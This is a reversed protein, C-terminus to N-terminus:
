FTVHTAYKFSVDQGGLKCTIIILDKKIISHTHIELKLTENYDFVQEEKVEDETRKLHNIKTFVSNTIQPEDVVIVFAITKYHYFLM